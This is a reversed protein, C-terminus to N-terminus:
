VLMSAGEQCDLKDEVFEGWLGGRRCHRKVFYFFVHDAADGERTKRSGIVVKIM